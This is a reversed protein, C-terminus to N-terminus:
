LRALLEELTTLGQAVRALGDFKLPTFSGAAAENIERASGRAVLREQVRENPTFLEFCAVQGVFGTNGCAPCGRPRFFRLDPPHPSLGLERTVSEAPTYPERCTECLRRLLRQSLVGIVGSSVLFGPLGMDMLQLFATAGAAANMRAVVIRKGFAASIAIRAVESDTLDGVMLVDPEQDVAARLADLFTYAHRPEPKGQVVGPIQYKIENEVTTVLRDPSNLQRMISYCTTTRGSGPPGAVLLLGNPRELVHNLAQLTQPYMGLQELGFGFATRYSIKLMAKDGNSTPAIICSVEFGAEDLEVRFYGKQSTGRKAIDLNALVKIRNVLTNHLRGDVPEQDALTAGIRFRVRTQLGYPELHIETAHGSLGATLIDDFRQIASRDDAGLGSKGAAPSEEKQISYKLRTAM